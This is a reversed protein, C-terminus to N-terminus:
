IEPYDEPLPIKPNVFNNNVYGKTYSNRYQTPTIKLKEKFLRMFYKVSSFGLDSAIQTVTKDTTLLMNEALKIKCEHIYEITSIQRYKKLLRTLNPVTINFENAVQKVTLPENAHLRIWHCILEVRQNSYTTDIKTISSEFQQSLEIAITSLFYSAQLIHKSYHKKDKKESSDLLQRLQLILRSLDTLKFIDPIYIENIKHNLNLDSPDLKMVKRKPFFHMWYHVTNTTTPKYGFHPTFPPVLICENQHVAYKKHSIEVYIYGKTVIMLEYDGDNNITYDHTWGPQGLFEGAKFFTLPSELNFKYLIDSLLFM